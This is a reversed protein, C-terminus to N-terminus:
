CEWKEVCDGLRFYAARRRICNGLMTSEVKGSFTEVSIKKLGAAGKVRRKQSARHQTM